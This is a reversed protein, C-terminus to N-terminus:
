TSAKTLMRDLDSNLVSIQNMLTKQFDFPNVKKEISLLNQIKNESNFSKCYYNPDDGM